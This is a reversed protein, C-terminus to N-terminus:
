STVSDDVKCSLECADAEPWRERAAIVTLTSGDTFTVRLSSDEAVVSAVTKEVMSQMSDIDRRQQARWFTM